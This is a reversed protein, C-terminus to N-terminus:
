PSPISRKLEPAIRKKRVKGAAEKPSLSRAETVIKSFLTIRAEEFYVNDVEIGRTPRALIERAPRQEDRLVIPFFKSTDACVLCRLGYERCSLALNVIGVKGVVNSQTVADAGVIAVDALRVARSLSSDALLTVRVGKRALETAMRLGELMPRSEPVFAKVPAKENASVLAELVSASASNTVVTKGALERAV